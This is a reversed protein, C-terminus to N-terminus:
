QGEKGEFTGRPGQILTWQKGDGWDVLVDEDGDGDVDRVDAFSLRHWDPMVLVEGGKDDRWEGETEHLHPMNKLGDRQPDVEFDKNATPEHVRLIDLSEVGQKGRAQICLVHAKGDGDRPFACQELRTDDRYGELVGVLKGKSVLYLHNPTENKTDGELPCGGYLLMHDAGGHAFPAKFAHAKKESSEGFDFISPTRWTIASTFPVDGKKAGPNLSTPCVECGAAGRKGDPCGLAVLLGDHASESLGGLVPKVEGTAPSGEEGAPADEGAQTATGSSPTESGLANTQSGEEPASDAPSDCALTFLALGLASSTHLIKRIM